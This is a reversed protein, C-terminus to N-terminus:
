GHHPPVDRLLAADDSSDSMETEDPEREPLVDGFVQLLQAARGPDPTAPSTAGPRSM